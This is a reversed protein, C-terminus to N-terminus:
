QNILVKAPRLLRDGLLYGRQLVKSVAGQPIDDRKEVGVAEHREPTFPEGEEGVPVLGHKTVAELLLKHTMSVGQLLGACADGDGGGYQLALDLNDLTPLLDSLVREAAYRMQEQHERHLRKKFNEMEAASRLRMDELEARFRDETLPQPQEGEPGPSAESNEPGPDPPLVEPDRPADNGGAPHPHGTQQWYGNM